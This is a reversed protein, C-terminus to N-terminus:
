SIDKIVLGLCTLNFCQAKKLLFIDIIFACTKIGKISWFLTKIMFAKELLTAKVGQAQLSWSLTRFANKISTLRTKKPLHRCLTTLLCWKLWQLVDVPMLFNFNTLSLRQSRFSSYLFTPMYARGNIPWDELSLTVTLTWVGGPSFLPESSWLILVQILQNYVINNHMFIQWTFDKIFAQLTRFKITM